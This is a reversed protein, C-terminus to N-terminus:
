SATSIFDLRLLEPTDTIVEFIAMGEDSYNVIVHGNKVPTKKIKGMVVEQHEKTLTSYFHKSNRMVYKRTGM